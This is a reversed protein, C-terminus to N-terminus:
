ATMAQLPNEVFYKFAGQECLTKNIQGIVESVRFRLSYKFFFTITGTHKIM